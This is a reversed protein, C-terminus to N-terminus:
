GQARRQAVSADHSTSISRRHSSAHRKAVALVQNRVDQIRERSPARGYEALMYSRIFGIDSHRSALTYLLQTPTLNM